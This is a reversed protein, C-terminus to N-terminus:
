WCRALQGGRFVFVTTGAERGVTQCDERTRRLEASWENGKFLRVAAPLLTGFASELGYRMPVDDVLVIRRAASATDATLTRIVSASVDAPAVWREDRQWYVPILVFMAVILGVCAMGFRRANSRLACSALASAALAFGISPTLAYLDSRNAAFMTLAFFGVIWLAGFVIVRRESPQLPSSPRVALSVVLAAISSILGARVAYEGINHIFARADATVPYHAPLNGPGFAGSNIRLVAYIALAAWLWSTARLTSVLGMRGRRSWWVVLTMIAPLLAAEEKSLLALLCWVGATKYRERLVADTTALAFICLMLATRGSIWLIAMRPAHIDFAWLASALVAAAPPLELTRAVRYILGAVLAFLVVNTAAYGRPTLGWIAYDAAFTLSVLPRYFGPTHSFIHALDTPSATRSSEIWEFDDRVFGHGLDPAYIAVFAVVLALVALRRSV